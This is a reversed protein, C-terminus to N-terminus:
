KGGRVLLELEADFAADRMIEAIAEARALEQRLWRSERQAAAFGSWYAWFTVAATFVALLVLMSWM